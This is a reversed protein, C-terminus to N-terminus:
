PAEEVYCTALTTRCGVCVLHEGHLGPRRQRSAEAMPRNRYPKPQSCILCWLHTSAIPADALAEALGVGNM